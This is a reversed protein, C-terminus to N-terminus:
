GPISAAYLLQRGNCIYDLNFTGYQYGRIKGVADVFTDMADKIYDFYKKEGTLAYTTLMREGGAAEAGTPGAACCRDPMSAHQGGDPYNPDGKEQWNFLCKSAEDSLATLLEETAKEMDLLREGRHWALDRMAVPYDGHTHLLTGNEEFHRRAIPSLLIPKAGQRRAM